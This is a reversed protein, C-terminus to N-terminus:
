TPLSIRAILGPADCIFNGRYLVRLEYADAAAARLLELGDENVIRPADGLTSWWFHDMDLAWAIGRPCDPDSILKTGYASVADFGMNYSRSEVGVKQGAVAAQFNAMDTPNLFYYDPTANSRALRANARIFVEEFGFSTGNFRIGGLRTPSLSRNVGFFLTASPAAAPVWAALGAQAVAEDGQKFLYDGVALATIIGTYTISGTDEDIATIVGTGTRPTTADDSDNATMVDGQEWFYVDEPNSLGIPSATGSGVQGRSGSNSRYAEKAANDGLTSLVGDIEAQLDDIMISAEGTKALDVSEGTIKAVGYDDVRTVDFEAYQSTYANAQATAFTHSRGSAKGHRVTVHQYKGGFNHTHKLMGLLPHKKYILEEDVGDVYLEKLIPTIETLSLTAAM